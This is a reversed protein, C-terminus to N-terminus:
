AKSTLPLAKAAEIMDAAKTKDEATADAKLLITEADSFLQTAEKKMELLRTGNIEM